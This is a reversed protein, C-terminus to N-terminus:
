MGFHKDLMLFKGESSFCSRTGNLMFPVYTVSSRVHPIQVTAIWPVSAKWMVREEHGAQPVPHTGSAPSFGSFPWKKTIHKFCCKCFLNLEFAIYQRARGTAINVFGQKLHGHVALWTRALYGPHAKHFDWQGLSAKEWSKAPLTGPMSFVHTTEHSDKQEM